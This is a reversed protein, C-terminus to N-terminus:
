RLVYFGKTTIKAHQIPSKVNKSDILISEQNKPDFYYLSKVVVTPVVSNSIKQCKKCGRYDIYVM